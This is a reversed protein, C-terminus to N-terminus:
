NINTENLYKPSPTSKRVKRGSKNKKDISIKPAYRYIFDSIDIIM